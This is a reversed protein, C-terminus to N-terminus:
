LRIRISSYLVWCSHNFNLSLRNLRCYKFCFVMIPLLVWEGVFILDFLRLFDSDLFFRPSVEGHTVPLDIALRFFAVKGKWGFGIRICRSIWGAPAAM